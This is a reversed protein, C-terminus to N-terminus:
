GSSRAGQGTRRKKLAPWREAYWAAIADEDRQTARVIPRQPTWGLDKLLRSVHAPHYSVGFQERILRAVRGCTWIAGRFGCAEAGQTLLEVLHARQVPTLLPPRGPPPHDQLAAVGQTTAHTLWQSVAGQTVGLAEAIQQQTWGQLHLEWARQRRGEHWSMPQRHDGTSMYQSCLM